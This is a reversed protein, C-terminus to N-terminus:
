KQQLPRNTPAAPPRQNSSASLATSHLENRNKSPRSSAAPSHQRQTIHVAHPHNTPNTTPHSPPRTTTTQRTHHHTPLTKAQRQSATSSTRPQKRHPIIQTPSQSTPQNEQPPTTTNQNQKAEHQHGQHTTPTPHPHPTQTSLLTNLTKNRITQWSTNTTTPPSNTTQRNHHM